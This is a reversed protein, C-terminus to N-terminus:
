RIGPNTYKIIGNENFNNIQGAILPQVYNIMKASVGSADENVWEPPVNKVKNCVDSLKALMTTCKYGHNEERKLATMFGSFGDLAYKVSARGAMEAEMIDTYSACHEACRQIVGVETLKVEKTIDEKICQQLYRGIGGLQTHGFADNTYCNSEVNIYQGDKGRLGESTVILLKNNDGLAKKANELFKEKEFQVEPLYINLNIDPVAKKLIGSAAAIWGADRGMVEMVTVSEKNYSNMDLWLELGANIIYKATSGFGPCHDTEVLDNDITKPVGIVKVDYGTSEAYSSIKSAADMSDNGGIYFFYRINFEKFIEILKKYDEENEKYDKLKYRCSGFAASPTYRLAELADKGMSGADIINKELIGQIGYLGAYVKFSSDQSLFEKIVGYASANIVTTPGGSQAFLCNGNVLKM